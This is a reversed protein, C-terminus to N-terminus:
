RQQIQETHRQLLVRPKYEPQAQTPDIGPHGSDQRLHKDNEKIQWAPYLSLSEEKCIRVEWDKGTV